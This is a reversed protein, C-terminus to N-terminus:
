ERTNKKVGYVLYGLHRGNKDAYTGNYPENAKFTGDFLIGTDKWRYIGKGYMAGRIFDGQYSNGNALIFSGRGSLLGNVFEGSHKDGNKYYRDGMGTMEGNAFDGVYTSGDSFTFTGKGELLGVKFDGVYISNDKFTQKGKGDRNGNKFGGVYKTSDSLTLVGNGEFLGNIFDGEYKAGDPLTMIGKGMMLGNRFDGIYKSGNALYAAGTGNPKGSTVTGEYKEGNRYTISGKGSLRNNKAEGVYKDGNTYNVVVDDQFVGRNFNGEMVYDTTIIKGKGEPEGDKFFGSVIKGNPYEVKGAGDFKGNVIAGTYKLALDYGEFLSLEGTGALLSDKCTGTWHASNFEYFGDYRFKCSKGSVNVWKETASQGMAIGLTFFLVTSFFFKRM